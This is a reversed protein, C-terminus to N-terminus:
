GDDDNRGQRYQQPSVGIVKRFCRSFYNVDTFGVQRAIDSLGTRRTQLLNLALNIRCRIVYQHLPLGTQRRVLRSIYAPHFNFIRGLERNDLVQRCNRRIYTLMEDTRRIMRDSPAPADTLHRSLEILLLLFHANAKEAYLLRQTVWEHNLAILISELHQMRELVLPKNFAPLDDFEVRELIAEPKFVSSRDPGIPRRIQQHHRTYDFNVGYLTLSQGPDPLYSYSLGPQWLMLCGASIPWRRGDIIIEGRGSSFYVLRHDYARVDAFQEVDDISFVHSYRVFPQIEGFHMKDPQGPALPKETERCMPEKERQNPEAEQIHKM